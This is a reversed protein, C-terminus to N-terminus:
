AQARRALVFSRIAVALFALSLLAMLAQAIVAAPRAVAGGGLWSLAGPLGRASGLFGVLALAVAGHMAHKRWRDQRAVFGCLLIPLGFFAPILATVSVQGTAFYGGVGLVILALAYSVTISPM